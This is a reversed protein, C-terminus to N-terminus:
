LRLKAVEDKWTVGCWQSILIGLQRGQEIEERSCGNNVAGKLHGKLQPNVDQPILCCLILLSTEKPSLIESYSLLVGYTNTLTYGWLDRSASELQQSIRSSLSGKYVTDWYKKGNETNQDYSLKFDRSHSPSATSPSRLPHPTNSKLIMMSNIVRPLGILAISKILCEKFKETIQFQQNFNQSNNFPNSLNTLISSKNDTANALQFLKVKENSEQYLQDQNIPINDM